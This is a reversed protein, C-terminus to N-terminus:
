KYPFLVERFIMSVRRNRVFERGHYNDKKRAAIGHQWIYRADGQLALVCGPALLIQTKEQTKPHLFDMVCPSGLSL